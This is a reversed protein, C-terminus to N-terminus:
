AAEFAVVQDALVMVQNAVRVHRGGRKPMEPVGDLRAPRPAADDLVPGLAAIM